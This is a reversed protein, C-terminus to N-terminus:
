FTVVPVLGSGDWCPSRGQATSNPLGPSPGSNSPAAMVAKSNRVSDSSAPKLASYFIVAHRVADGRRMPACMAMGAGARRESLHSVDAARAVSVIWALHHHSSQCSSSSHLRIVADASRGPSRWLIRMPRGELKSVLSVQDRFSRLPVGCLFSGSGGVQAAKFVSAHMPCSDLCRSHVLEPRAGRVKGHSTPFSNIRDRHRKGAPQVLCKPAVASSSAPGSCMPDLIVSRVPPGQFTAATSSEAM